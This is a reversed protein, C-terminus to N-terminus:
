PASSWLPTRYEAEAHSQTNDSDTMLAWGMLRGPPAGFAQLYDARLNRTFQRWGPAASEDRGDVVVMQIRRTYPNAVVEGERKGPASVYMLTAFPLPRSGLRKATAMVLRDGWPLAAADGDFFFVLRAAADERGARSIDPQEPHKAIRWEWHVWANTELDVQATRALLSAARQALAHVVQTDRSADAPTSFKYLTPPKTANIPVHTWPPSTTEALPRTM